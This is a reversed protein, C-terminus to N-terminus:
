LKKLWNLTSFKAIGTLLQYSPLIREKIDSKEWEIYEHFFKNYFPDPERHPPQKGRHIFLSRYSYSDSIISEIEKENYDSLNKSPWPGKNQTLFDSPENIENLYESLEQEPHVVISNWYKLPAYYLIFKVYRDKLSKNKGRADKYEKLLENFDNDNKAKEKWVNELLPSKKVENRSIVIQAISEICSVILLYALGFDEKKNIYSLHALRIAQM